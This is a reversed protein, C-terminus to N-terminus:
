RNAIQEISNCIYMQIYKSVSTTRWVDFSKKLFEQGKKLGETTYPDFDFEFWTKLEKDDLIQENSKEEIFRKLHINKNRQETSRYAFVKGSGGCDFCRGEAIHSFGKIIGTGSCKSCCVKIKNGSAKDIIQSQLDAIIEQGRKTDILYKM